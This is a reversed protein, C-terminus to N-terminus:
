APDHLAAGPLLIMPPSALGKCSLSQRFLSFKVPLAQLNDFREIL